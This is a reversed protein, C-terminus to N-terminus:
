NPVQVMFRDLAVENFDGGVFVGVSGADLTKDQITAVEVGNVSFALRDGSARVMLDNPSGGARVASSRTWPVLDVWHDGNRRWVGFEGLDGAELVYADMNQNVGNRPDPGQDRIVLGYGGGPPGGTKRFTASVVVDSLWSEIPAGVAVFHAAQRAQLRYAGDNWSAFPPNELWKVSPGSAFRVDILPVAANEAAPRSSSAPTAPRTPPAPTPALTPAPAPTARAAAVAVTSTAPPRSLTPVPEFAQTATAKSPAQALGSNFSPIAVIALVLVVLGVAGGTILLLGRSFVPGRELGAVDKREPPPV